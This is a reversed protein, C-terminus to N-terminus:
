SDLLWRSSPSHWHHTDVVIKMLRRVSSATADIQRLSARAEIGARHHGGAEPWDLRSTPPEVTEAAGNAIKM